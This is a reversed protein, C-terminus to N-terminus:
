CSQVMGKNHKHRWEARWRRWRQCDGTAGGVPRCWRKVRNSRGVLSSGWRRASHKRLAAGCWLALMVSAIARVYRAKQIWQQSAVVFSQTRVVATPKHILHTRLAVSSCSTLSLQVLVLLKIRYRTATTVTTRLSRRSAEQCKVHRLRFENRMSASNRRTPRELWRQRNAHPSCPNFVSQWVSLSRAVPLHWLVSWGQLPVKPLSSEVTYKIAAIAHQRWNIASFWNRSVYETTYENIIM